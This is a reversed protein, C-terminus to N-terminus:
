FGWNKFCDVSRIMSILGTKGTSQTDATCSKVTSYLTTLGHRPKAIGESSSAHSETLGNSFPRLPAVNIHHTNITTFKGSNEELEVQLFAQSLDLKSFKHGGSLTAYLKEIEPLPCQEVLSELNATSKYDGCIRVNGYAKLVPVVPAAWDSFQM